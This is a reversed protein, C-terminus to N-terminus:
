DKNPTSPPNAPKVAKVDLKMSAHPAQTMKKGHMMGGMEVHKAQNEEQADIKKQIAVIYEKAIENNPDLELAHTLMAKSYHFASSHEYLFALTIFLKPDKPSLGIADQMTRIGKRYEQQLLYVGMLKRHADLSKSNDAIFKKLITEAQKLLETRKPSDTALPVAQIYLEKAEALKNSETAGATSHGLTFAFLSLAVIRFFIKM